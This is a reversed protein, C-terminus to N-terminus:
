KMHPQANCSNIRLPTQSYDKVGNCGDPAQACLCWINLWGHCSISVLKEITNHLIFFANKSESVNFIAYVSVLM